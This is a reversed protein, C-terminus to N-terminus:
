TESILNKVAKKIASSDMEYKELLEKAEGSEGFTNQLGIFEIKTPHHKSLVEAIASGMGGQVQHDECTIIAGTKKALEIITKEDIPKISALNAVLVEIGEEELDKAALLAQYTMHGTAFITAKPNETTWFVQVKSPDYPTEETTVLPTKERSFRLYFTGQTNASDITAKKAEIADCPVVVHVNPWVRTIAIDETAQHTAGDPGTVIGAHHGAIKVNANNYAAISRLTEYNKGPSFVAFSNIYAIKGAEALGAAIAAMNQEAVGCEVFRDPYTAAFKDVKCSEGLDATLVIVNENKAGLEMIGIGFGDRTAKKECDKTFIKQNLNLDPNLM